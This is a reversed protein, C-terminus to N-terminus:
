DKRMDKSLTSLHYIVGGTDDFELSDLRFVATLEVINHEYFVVDTVCWSETVDKGDYIARQRIPSPLKAM